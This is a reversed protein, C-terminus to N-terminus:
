GQGGEKRLKELEAELRSIEADIKEAESLLTRRGSSYAKKTIRGTSMSRRLEELRTELGKRQHMLERIKAALNRRQKVGEIKREFGEFRRRKLDRIGTFDRPKEVGPKRRLLVAALLFVAVLIILVKRWAEFGPEPVAMEKEEGPVSRNVAEALRRELAQQIELEAAARAKRAEDIALKALQVSARASSYARYYSGGAEYSAALRHNERSDLLASSALVYHAEPVSINGGYGSVSSLATKGLEVEFEASSILMEALRLERRALDRYDAYEIRVRFGSLVASANEFVSLTYVLTDRTLVANLPSYSGFQYGEPVIFQINARHVPWPYEGLALGSFTYVGEEESLLDSRRYSLAVRKKQGTSIMFELIIKRPYGPDVRYPFGEVEVDEANGRILHLSGEYTFPDGPKEFVLTEVVRFDGEGLYYTLNHERVYLDGQAEVLPILFVSLFLLPLRM